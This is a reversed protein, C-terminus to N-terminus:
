DHSAEMAGAARRELGLKLRITEAEQTTVEDDEDGFVLGFIDDSLDNITALMGLVAHHKCADSDIRQERVMRMLEDSLGQILTNASRALDLREARTVHNTSQKTAM